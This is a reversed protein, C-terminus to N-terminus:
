ELVYVTADHRGWNVAEKTSRMYVDIRTGKSSQGSDNAVAVGYGEIYLRTGYPIVSPDVACTGYYCHEGIASTANRGFYYAATNSTFTDTWTTEESEGTISTGCRLIHDSGETLWEKIETSERDKKGNIYTTIHTVVAEGEKGETEEIVGSELEPDLILVDKPVITEQAESTEKRVDKVEIRTKAGVAQDAAPSLIDDEDYTVGNKALNEAVTGPILTFEVTEGAIVASSAIGRKVTVTSGARIKGAPEASVVDADTFDIGAERLVGEASSSRALLTQETQGDMTMEIVTVPAPLLYLVALVILVVAALLSTLGIIKNRRSSLILAGISRRKKKENM